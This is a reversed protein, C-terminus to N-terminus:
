SFDLCMALAVCLLGGSFSVSLKQVASLFPATTLHRRATQGVALSPALALFLALFLLPAVLRALNTDKQSLLLTGLAFAGATIQAGRDLVIEAPGDLGDLKGSYNKPPQLEMVLYVMVVLFAISVGVGIRTEDVTLLFLAPWLAVGALFVAAKSRLQKTVRCARRAREGGLGHVKITCFLAIALVLLAAVACSRETAAVM